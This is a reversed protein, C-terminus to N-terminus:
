DCCVNGTMHQIGIVEGDEGGPVPVTGDPNLTRFCIVRAATYPTRVAYDSFDLVNADAPLLKGTEGGCYPCPYPALTFGHVADSWYVSHGCRHRTHFYTEM